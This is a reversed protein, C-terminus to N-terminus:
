AVMISKCKDEKCGTMAMQAAPAKCKDEKCGTMATGPADALEKKDWKSIDWSTFKVDTGLDSTKVTELSLTRAVPDNTELLIEDTGVDFHDHILCLGFRDLNGHKNLVAHIDELFAEDGHALPLADDFTPLNRTPTHSTTQM